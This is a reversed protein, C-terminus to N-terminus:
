RVRYNAHRVLDLALEPWFVGTPPAGARCRGGSVGPNAIWAFADVNPYGTAATPLPGLGRRPPDCLVENGQKAPHRPRLAGQGNEATNIVFHKGGTLRSIREGYAIEKSTWDFHTSNLFFGQIQGVAARRLLSAVKRAPLADAAGADLYTVLHPVASLVDIADHLEHMRVAVGQHSLCGVTILADMELFLVAPHTGIGEALSKIFDHYAAQESPPDSWRGCHGYVIRYTSIMPVTGPGQAAARTLYTSVNWGPFPGNWAGFRETNPAAAIVAMKAAARPDSVTWALALQGPIGQSYDAFFKAGALPNGNLPTAPLRLPNLPDRLYLSPDDLSLTFTIQSPPVVGLPSGDSLAVELARPLIPVGHDMAPIDIEAMWQGDVFRLVGSVPTFSPYAQGSPDWVSYSVAGAGVTADRIVPISLVAPNGHFAVFLSGPVVVHFGPVAVPGIENSVASASGHPDVDTEVIRLSAGVDAATVIHQTSWGAAITPSGVDACTSRCAQWQLKDTALAPLAEDFTGRYGSLADGVRVTGPTRQTDDHIRPPSTSVPTISPPSFVEVTALPGSGGEGGAVLVRGDPLPAAAAAYRPTAMPAVPQLAWGVLQDYIVTKPTGAPNSVSASGGAILARGGPLAAASAEYIPTSLPTWGQGSGDATNYQFVTLNPNSGGPDFGGALLLRGNGLSAAVAGVTSGTWGYPSWANTAPNYIEAYGSPTVGGAAWVSGDPLAAAVARERAVAMPAAPSWTGTAGDYIETSASPSGGVNGGAVLVRDGPLPAAAAFGRASGMAAVPTWANHAPDYVEAGATAHGSGDLGGAVLVRGDSLEAAVAGYRASGM